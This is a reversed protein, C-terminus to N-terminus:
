KPQLAPKGMLPRDKPDPVAVPGGLMTPKISTDPVCKVDGKLHIEETNPKSTTDRPVVNKINPSDINNFNQETFNSAVKGMKEPHSGCGTFLMGGFVFLLAALFVKYRHKQQQAVPVVIQDPRFRGCVRESTREQIFQIVKETAMNTFDVVVKCCKDCLRGKEQPTM